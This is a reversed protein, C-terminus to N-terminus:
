RQPGISRVVPAGCKPCQDDRFAIAAGCSACRALPERRPDKDAPTAGARVADRRHLYHVSDMDHRYEPGTGAAPPQFPQNAALAKAILLIAGVTLVLGLFVVFVIVAAGM